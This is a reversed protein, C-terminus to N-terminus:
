LSSVPQRLSQPALRKEYCLFRLGPRFALTIEGSLTYGLSPFLRRTAENETNTDVRLVAISRARAVAEAQQMLARAIGKGRVAPDVALRHVTIAPESLDWGVNAYEHEQDTTIASVGAVAGDLEAVWLQSHEIDRYFVDPNPYTDDWQHNGTARMLPVIRRVLEMLAPVDQPIAQRILM